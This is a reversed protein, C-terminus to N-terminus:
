ENDYPRLKRATGLFEVLFHAGRKTLHYTSDKIRKGEPLNKFGRDEPKVIKGDIFLNLAKKIAEENVLVKLTIDTHEVRGKGEELQELIGYSALLYGNRARDLEAYKRITSLEELIERRIEAPTDPNDM